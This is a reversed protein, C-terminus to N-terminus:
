TQVALWSILPGGRRRANLAQLIRISHFAISICTWAAVALMGVDPLGILVFASLILLNPNRRATILRFWSDVPRWIHMHMGFLWIFLGEQLRGVVYGGIVIAFILSADALAQGTAELGIIWAAYWFPPHILDVGHDFVDGLKTSTLTVRALKGDVTDLFTMMWAAALGAAFAGELFLWCAALVCVLSVWTVANPSIGAEAAWRTVRLAPRPWVYKTVLDTVGKYAGQFMRSEIMRLNARSLPLIYPAERKRLSQSYASSIEVPGVCRLGAALDASFAREGSLAPLLKAATEPDCHAAVPTRGDETMLITGPAAALARILSEDLVYDARVLIQAASDAPKGDISEAIGARRFARRIREASTMGWIKVDSSGVVRGVPRGAM